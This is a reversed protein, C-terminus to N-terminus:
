LCISIILAAYDVVFVGRHKLFESDICASVMDLVTVSTYIFNIVHYSVYGLFRVYLRFNSVHRSLCEFAVCFRPLPLSIKYQNLFYAIEKLSRKKRNNQVSSYIEAIPCSCFQARKPQIVRLNM